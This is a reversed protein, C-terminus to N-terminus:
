GRLLPFEGLPLQQNGRKRFELFRNMIVWARKQIEVTTPGDIRVHEGHRSNKSHESIFTVYAEDVHVAGRFIPWAMRPDGPAVLKRLGDVVRGCSVPTVHPVSICQVLDNLLMFLAPESMVLALVQELVKKEEKTAPSMRFATCERVLDPSSTFILQSLVGDPRVFQEFIVYLGHGSGFVAVNVCARVLDFARRHLEAVYQEKYTDLECEVKVRSREVVVTFNITISEEEWKWHVKPVDAFSVQIPAPLVRGLFSVTPM